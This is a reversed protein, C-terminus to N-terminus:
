TFLANIGESARAIELTKNPGYHGIPFTMYRPVFGDARERGEGNLCDHIIKKQVKGPESVSADAVAKGAIESLLANIATRDKILDLFVDDLKWWRTRNSRWGQPRTLSRALRWPRPWSLPWSGCCPM